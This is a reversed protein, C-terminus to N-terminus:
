LAGRCASRLARGAAAKRVYVQFPGFTPGARWAGSQLILGYYRGPSSPVYGPASALKREKTLVDSADQVPITVVDPHVQDYYVYNGGMSVTAIKIVPPAYSYPAIVMPADPRVCRALWDGLRRNNPSLATHLEPYAMLVTGGQVVQLVILAGAIALSATAAKGSNLWRPLVLRIERLSYAALLVCLPVAPLLYTPSVYNIKAVLLGMFIAFFTLTFLFPLDAGRLKGRIYRGVVLLAGLIALASVAFSFSRDQEALLLFWRFGYWEGGMMTSRSYIANLFQLHWILWPSTIAFVVLFALVTAVFIYLKSLPTRLRAFDFGALYAAAAALCLIAAAICALRFAQIIWYFTGGHSYAIDTLGEYLFVNLPYAIRALQLLGVALLCALLVLIRTAVTYARDGIRSAPVLLAAPVLLPILLIGQYKTGFAAGAAASAALVFKLDPRLARWRVGGPREFARGLFYISLTLFCVQWTDPHVETSFEVFAPSFAMVTAAFVAEVFGLFHRAFLYVVAITAFGGLLAALRLIFFLAHETLPQFLAYPVALLMSFNYYFHAYDNQGVKHMPDAIAGETFHLVEMSDLNYTQIQRYNDTLTDFFYPYSHIAIWAFLLGLCLLDLSLKNRRTAM